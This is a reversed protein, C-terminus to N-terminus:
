HRQFLVKHITSLDPVLKDVSNSSMQKRVVDNAKIAPATPNNLPRKNVLLCKMPQGDLQRNHYTEVAKQADKLNKYIVEATGPRVLRAIMLQGIDEFLERIDDQTVTSQLNSVVIRHGAPVVVKAKQQGLIGHTTPASDLRSHVGSGGSRGLGARSSRVHQQQSEEDSDIEMFNGNSRLPSAYTKWTGSSADSVMGRPMMEMVPRRIEMPPMMPSMGSYGAAPPAYMDHAHHSHMHHGHVQPYYGGASMPMSYENSITRRLQLPGTEKRKVAQVPMKKVRQQVGSGARPTLGLQERIKTNINAAAKNKNTVLMIKGNKDTKQLIHKGIQKINSAPKPAIGRLKQLKARADQGKAMSALVDRADVVHTRKKQIIKQRADIVTKPKGITKKLTKGTTVGNRKTNPRANKNNYTSRNKVM